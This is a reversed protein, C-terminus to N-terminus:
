VATQGEVSFPVAGKEAGRELWVEVEAPAVLLKNIKTILERRDAHNEWSQWDKISFWSSIVLHVSFDTASVLTESSLYGNTMLARSRLATLLSNLEKEKGPRVKRKITVKIAM